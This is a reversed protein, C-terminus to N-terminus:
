RQRSRMPLDLLTAIEKIWRYVTTEAGVREVLQSIIQRPSMQRFFYFATVDAKRLLDNPIRVERSAGSCLAKQRYSDLARELNAHMQAKFRNWDDDPEGEVSGGMTIGISLKSTPVTEVSFSFLDNEKSGDRPPPYVITVSRTADLRALDPVPYQVVEWYDIVDQAWEEVWTEGLSFQEAWQQPTVTGARVDVALQRLAEQNHRFGSDLFRAKLARNWDPSAFVPKKATRAM